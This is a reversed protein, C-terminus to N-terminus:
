PSSTSGACGHRRSACALEARVVADYRRSTVRPREDRVGFVSTANAPEFPGAVVDGNHFVDALVNDTSWVTQALLWRCFLCVNARLVLCHFLSSRHPHLHRDFCCVVLEDVLQIDIIAFKCASIDPNEGAVKMHQANSRFISAATSSTLCAHTAAAHSSRLLVCNRPLMTSGATTCKGTGSARSHTIRQMGM